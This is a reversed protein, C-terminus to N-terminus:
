ADDWMELDHVTSGLYRYARWTDVLGARVPNNIVYRMHNMLESSTRVIRDYFDKQWRIGPCHRALWYNSRQKFRKMASLPDGTLRPTSVIVHLHDPMLVYIELECEYHAVAERLIHEMATAVSRDRFAKIRNGVVATFAVICPGHYHKKPLRHPRERIPGM